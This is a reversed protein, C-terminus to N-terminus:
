SRAAERQEDEIVRAAHFTDYYIGLRVEAYRRKRRWRRRELPRWPWAHAIRMDICELRALEQEWLKMAVEGVGSLALLYGFNVLEEHTYEEFPPSAM